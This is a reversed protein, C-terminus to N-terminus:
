TLKKQLFPYEAYEEKEEPQDDGFVKILKKLDEVCLKEYDFDSDM